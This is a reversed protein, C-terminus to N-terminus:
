LWFYGDWAFSVYDNAKRGRSHFAVFVYFKECFTKLMLFLVFLDPHEEKSM